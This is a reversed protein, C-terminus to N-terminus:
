RESLSEGASMRNSLDRGYVDGVIIDAVGIEIASHSGSAVVCIAFAITIGCARALSSIWRRTKKM